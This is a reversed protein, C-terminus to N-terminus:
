RKVIKYTVGNVNVMYVGTSLASLPFAYYGATSVSKTFVPTGDLAHLSVTTGAALSPFLLSNGDLLFLSEGAHIDLINSESADGYTFRLMDELPYSVEADKVSIVLTTDTFNIKPKEDLAYAVKTSDKAWVVLMTKEEASLPQGAFLAVSVALLLRWVCRNRKMDNLEINIM